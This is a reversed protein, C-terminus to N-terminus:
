DVLGNSKATEYQKIIEERAEKNRMMHMFLNRAMGEEQKTKFYLGTAIFAWVFLVMETISVEIM